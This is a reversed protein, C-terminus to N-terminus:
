ISLEQASNLITLGGTDYLVRAHNEKLLVRSLLLGSTSDTCERYIRGVRYVTGKERVFGEGEAKIHYTRSPCATSRLEGHLYKDSTHILLQFTDSTPNQFRYDVYNYMISTGTGFPIQRNHDPFLDVSDHHHHETITLDTHLVMWHILNSLQCLGGGIGSSPAGMAITLGEQYGLKTTTKGVLAWLSFIEGPRIIIGNVRPAALSLNVAKNEQLAMDINGLSRRILSNHEYLLFPLPTQERAAAFLSKVSLNRIHRIARCKYLSIQYTLPCIQCFLKRKM